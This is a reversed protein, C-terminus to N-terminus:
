STERGPFSGSLHWAESVGVLEGAWDVDDWRM